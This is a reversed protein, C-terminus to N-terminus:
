NEAGHDPTAADPIAIAGILEAATAPKVLHAAFGAARSRERDHAQGFGSYAILRPSATGLRRHIERALEYGDMDPLGIDLLAVEPRLEDLRALAAGGDHLVAVDHGQTALLEAVLRAADENDDVILVRRAPLTVRPIAVPSASGAAGVTPPPILPLRVTFTSGHGLGASHASVVGGHLETLSKVIALGLGLGTRASSKRPAQVFPEFLHGIMEAAIGQGNDIVDIIAVGDAERARIKVRGALGTFRAANVLLNAVVQVLRGEDGDIWLGAGGIELDLAHRYQVFLPRTMEIARGIVRAVEVPARVLTLKGTSFRSVDLIDDVLRHLHIAQRKIVVVERLPLDTTRAELLEVATLIPALPNRLEHGLVALFEDKARNAAVLERSQRRITAVQGLRAVTMAIVQAIHHIYRTDRYTFGSRDDSFCLVGLREGNAELPHCLCSLRPGTTCPAGTRLVDDVIARHSPPLADSSVAALQDQARSMTWYAAGSTGAPVVDAHDGALQMAAGVLILSCHEFELVWRVRGAAARLLAPLETAEACETLLELLVNIRAIDHDSSM